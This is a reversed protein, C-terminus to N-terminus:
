AFPLLVAIPFGVVTVTLVLMGMLLLPGSAVGLALSAATRRSATIGVRAVRGPFLMGAVWGFFVTIAWALLITFLVMPLGPLGLTFPAFGVQVTQGEIRAGPEERLAGGVAVADGRVRASPELDISGLVAVVDGTVEGAIRVSGFVAVVDGDVREGAGVEADSFLRVVGSGDVLEIDGSSMVTDSDSSTRTVIIGHRGIEVKRVRGDRTVTVEAAAPSWTLTAVALLAAATRCAWYGSM